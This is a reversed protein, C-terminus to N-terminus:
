PADPVPFVAAARAKAASLLQAYNEENQNRAKFPFLQSKPHNPGAAVALRSSRRSSGGGARGLAVIEFVPVDGLGATDRDVCICKQGLLAAMRRLMATRTEEDLPIAAALFVAIM